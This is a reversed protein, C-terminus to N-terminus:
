MSHMLICHLLLFYFFTFFVILILFVLTFILTCHLFNTIIQNLLLCHCTTLRSKFSTNCWNDPHRHAEWHQVTSLFLVSILSTGSSRLPRSPEYHLLLSSTYKPVFVHLAKYVLLLTKFWNMSWCFAPTFIQSMQAYVNKSTLLLDVTGTEEHMKFLRRDPAKAFTKCLNRPLQRLLVLYLRSSSYGESQRHQQRHRCAPLFSSLSIWCVIFTKRWVSRRM